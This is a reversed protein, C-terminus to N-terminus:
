PLDVNENFLNVHDFSAIEIEIQEMPATLDKELADELGESAVKAEAEAEAEADAEADVEM